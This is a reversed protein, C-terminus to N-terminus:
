GLGRGFTSPSSPDLESNHILSLDIIRTVPAISGLEILESTAHELAGSQPHARLVAM